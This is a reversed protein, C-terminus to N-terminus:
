PVLARRRRLRLLIMVGAALIMMPPLWGWFPFVVTPDGRFDGIRGEQLGIGGRQKLLSRIKLDCEVTGLSRYDPKLVRHQQYDYVALFDPSTADNRHIQFVLLSGDKSWYAQSTYIEPWFLDGLYVPKVFTWPWDSAYLNVSIDTFGSVESFARNSKGVPDLVDSANQPHFMSVWILAMVALVLVLTM